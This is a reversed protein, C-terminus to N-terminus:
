FCPSKSFENDNGGLLVRECTNELMLNLYQDFSRLVGVLHRGDRLILMIRKDLQELLAAAGPLYPTSDDM